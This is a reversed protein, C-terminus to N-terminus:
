ECSTSSDSCIAPKVTYKNVIGAPSCFLVSSVMENIHCPRSSAPISRFLVTIARPPPTVPSKAPKAAEAYIRPMGQTPTGVDRSAIASEDIPPFVPQSRGSPFFRTPANWEGRSTRESGSVRDVKGSSSNREPRPSTTLCPTIASGTKNSSHLLPYEVTLVLRGSITERAIATFIFTISTSGNSRPIRAASLKPCM